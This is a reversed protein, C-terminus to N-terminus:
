RLSYYRELRYTSGAAGPWSSWLGFRAVRFAPARFLNHDAIWAAVADPDTRRLYALTVHPAFNRTEPACGAKRAATECRAALQRLAASEEVGAWIARVRDGAGFAGVGAPTLDFPPLVAGELAVAIDEFRREDVDGFFRLTIHLNEAPQWRVDKLGGQCAALAEAQEGPMFIAGFLRIM